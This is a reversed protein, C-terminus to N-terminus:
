AGPLSRMLAEVADKSEKLGSGTLDRYRKIASILQKQALLSLLEPDAVAAVHAVSTRPAEWIMKENPRRRGFLMGAVFAVAAIVAAVSYSVM